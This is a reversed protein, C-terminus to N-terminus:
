QRTNDVTQGFNKFAEAVKKKHDPNNKIAEIQHAIRTCNEIITETSEGADSLCGITTGLITWLFVNNMNKM